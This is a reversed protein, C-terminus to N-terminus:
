GAFVYSDVPPTNPLVVNSRVDEQINRYTDRWVRWEYRLDHMTHVYMNSVEALSRRAEPNEIYQVLTWYWDDVSSCLVQPVVNTNYVPSNTAIPMAGALAFEWSKIPSKRDCFPTDNVSCCGIDVQMNTGYQEHPLFPLVTLKDLLPKYTSTYIIPSCWGAIVFRVDSRTLALRRWAALLNTLESPNRRGGAWGITVVESTRLNTTRLSKEFQYVPIANPICYVNSKTFSRIYNCLQETSATVADCQNLMWRAGAARAQLLDLVNIKQQITMDPELVMKSINEIYSESFIDDDTEYVIRTGNKRINTLWDLMLSQENPLAIVRPLVLIDLNKDLQTGITIHKYSVDLGQKYLEDYPQTIRWRLWGPIVEYDSLAALVKM